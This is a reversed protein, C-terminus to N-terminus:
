HHVKDIRLLVVEKLKETSILYAVKKSDGPNGRDIYAPVEIHSRGSLYTDNVSNRITCGDCHITKGCGDPHKSHVCEFVEGSSLGEIEPLEKQLIDRAQSNATKINSMEDVVLVPASLRDLFSELNLGLKAYLKSACEECIWHSITSNDIKDSFPAMKMETQCWACMKKM